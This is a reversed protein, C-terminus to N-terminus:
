NGEPGAGEDDLSVDDSSPTCPSDAPFAENAWTELPTADLGFYSCVVMGGRYLFGSAVRLLLAVEEPDVEYRYETWGDRPVTRAMGGLTIFNPHAFLSLLDYLGPAGPLGAYEAFRKAARSLGPYTQGAVTWPPSIPHEDVSWDTNADPFRRILEARVEERARKANRIQPRSLGRAAALWRGRYAGALRNMWRRAVRQDADAAPDLLWGAVSVHEVVARVLPWPALVVNESAVLCQLGSIHAASAALLAVADMGANTAEHDGWESHNVRLWMDEKRAQCVDPIARLQAGTATWAVVLETLREVWPDLPRSEEESMARMVDRNLLRHWRYTRNSEPEITRHSM